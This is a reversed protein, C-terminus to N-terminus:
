FLDGDGMMYYLHDGLTKMPDPNVFPKYIMGLGQPEPREEFSLGDIM